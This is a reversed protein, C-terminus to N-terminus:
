STAAPGTATACDTAEIPRGLAALAADKSCAAADLEESIGFVIANPLARRLETLLGLTQQQQVNDILV